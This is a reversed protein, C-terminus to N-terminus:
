RRSTTPRDRGASRRSCRTTPPRGSTATTSGSPGSTAPRRSRSSARGRRGRATLGVRGARGPRGPHRPRGGACPRGPLRRGRDGRDGRRRRGRDGHPGRPRAAPPGARYREERRVCSRRRTANSGRSRTTAASRRGRGRAADVVRIGGPGIAGVAFEPHGPAGLKRVVLVDLPAGLADAVVRAVPVGGRPLGLVIPDDSTASRRAVAGRSGPAPTRAIPSCRLSRAAERHRAPRAEHAARRRSRTRRRLRAGRAAAAAPTRDEFAPAALTASVRKALIARVEVIREGGTTFVRVEDGIKVTQAPKARDGNIRVHGAKCLATAASRTKALRIAWIWSDVRGEAMDGRYRTAADGADGTVFRLSAAHGARM